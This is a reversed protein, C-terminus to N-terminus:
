GENQRHKRVISLAIELSQEYNLRPDVNTEYARELDKVTLDRAGGLCETVDEGTMELHVGGLRSGSAEHIDFTLELEGLVNSFRRTKIGSDTKETNGHMPDCSWLVTRGSQQVAEVLTPLKKEVQDVGLRSMLMLRGPDDAPNLTEILHLLRQKTMDPGVKVGIPNHIGRMYEVHGDEPTGTRKGIWPFHTSLNYYGGESRAYGADEPHECYRTLSEEYPLHLAEHSTYFAVRETGTLPVETITEAFTLAERIANVIANYESALPSHHVFDLDWNEPHHLDAFGSETLARVHNLTAASHHYAKLLRQPDPTRSAEEFDYGNIIDGRYSPLTRGDKTETPSSRPKAYQGAFRGVRLVRTNLGYVLVLSMQLLIKLRNTIVEPRCDGFHEACDGGQLLFARGAAADAIQKRLASVEWPSVLPPLVSLHDLVEQLEKHNPYTPQYRVEKTRWSDPQWKSVSPTPTVM